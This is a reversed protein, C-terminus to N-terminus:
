HQKIYKIARHNPVYMNIIKIDEQDIYLTGQRKYYNKSLFQKTQYKFLWGPQNEKQKWKCPIDTEM